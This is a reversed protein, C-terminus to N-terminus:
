NTTLQNVCDACFQQARELDAKGPGGGFLGKVPATLTQKLVNVGQNLLAQRMQALAVGDEKGCVFLAANAVRNSNLSRIFELTVKDAKGGECGLFMLQINEPMYAPLLPEKVCKAERAIAEAVQEASGKPSVYHVRIKM